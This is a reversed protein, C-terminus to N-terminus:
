RAAARRTGQVSTPCAARHADASPSVVLAIPQPLGTPAPRGIYLGRVAADIAADRFDSGTTDLRRSQLVVGARSIWMKLAVRYGGPAAAPNRCLAQLVAQQITAFYQEGTGAPAPDAKLSVTELALQHPVLNSGTLLIELAARPSLAGQLGQTSRGAVQRADALVEIGTAASFAYLAKSLPQPPIDFQIPRDPSLPRGQDEAVAQCATALFVACGVRCWFSPRSAFRVAIGLVFGARDGARTAERM